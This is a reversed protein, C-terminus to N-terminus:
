RNKRQRMLFGRTSRTWASARMPSFLFKACVLAAGYSDLTILMLKCSKLHQCNVSKCNESVRASRYGVQFDLSLSSNAIRYDKNDDEGENYYDEDYDAEGENIDSKDEKDEYDDNENYGDENEIKGSMKHDRSELVLGRLCQIDSLWLFAQTEAHLKNHNDNLITM